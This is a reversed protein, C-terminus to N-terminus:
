RGGHWGPNTNRFRPGRRRRWSSLAASCSPPQALVNPRDGTVLDFRERASYTTVGAILDVRGRYRILYGVAICLVAVAIEVGLSLLESSM